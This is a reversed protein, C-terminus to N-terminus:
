WYKIQRICAVKISRTKHRVLVHKYTINNNSSMCMTKNKANDLCHEKNKPPHQPNFTSPPWLTLDDVSTAECRKRIRGLKTQSSVNKKKFFLDKFPLREQQNPKAFYPYVRAFLRM